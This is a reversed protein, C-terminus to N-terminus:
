SRAILLSLSYHRLTLRNAPLGAPELKFSLGLWMLEVCPM